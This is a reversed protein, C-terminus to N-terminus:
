NLYIESSLIYEYTPQVTEMIGSPLIIMMMIMIMFVSLKSTTGIGQGELHMQDM